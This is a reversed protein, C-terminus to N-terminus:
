LHHLNYMIENKVSWTKYKTIQYNLEHIKFLNKNGVKCTTDINGIELLVNSNREDKCQIPM